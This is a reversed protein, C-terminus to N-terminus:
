AVGPERMKSMLMAPPTWSLAASAGGGNQYFEMVIDYLTNASLTITGSRAIAGQDIWIMRECLSSATYVDHTVLLLTTGRGGCIERIRKLYGAPPPAGSTAGVVPEVIFAAISEPGCQQIAQELEEACALECSPFELKSTALPSSCRQQALAM